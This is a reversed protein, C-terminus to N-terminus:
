VRDERDAIIEAAWSGRIKSTIELVEELTVSPDALSHLHQGLPSNHFSKIQEELWDRKKTRKEKMWQLGLRILDLAVGELSRNTATAERNLEQQIEEPLRITLTIEEAMEGGRIIM